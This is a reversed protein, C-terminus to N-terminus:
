ECVAPLLRRLTGGYIERLDTPRLFPCHSRLVELSQRYTCFRTSAPFDSGWCLRGAGYREFIQELIALADRWPYDWGAEVVYHLGAVKLYINPVDASALVEGVPTSAPGNSAHVGGLANCLVPVTPHRSALARLDAHWSPFSGLSVLLGLEGALSFLEDAEDSRLFGDNEEATYHAFGVISHREALRQLRAASGPAHYSESWVCDLDPVMLLRGRHARIARSVYEVNDPNKEIAACVVLAAKVGNVDMEHLLLEAAGRSLEDPVVPSYPWRSWAHSHCDIFDFESAPQSTDPASM